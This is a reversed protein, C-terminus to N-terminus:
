YARFAFTHKKVHLLTNSHLVNCVADCAVYVMYEIIKNYNFMKIIMRMCKRGVVNLKIMVILVV